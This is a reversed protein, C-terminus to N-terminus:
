VYNSDSYFLVCVFDIFLAIIFSVAYTGTDIADRNLSWMFICYLIFLILHFLYLGIYMDSFNKYVKHKRLIKQLQKSDELKYNLLSNYIHFTDRYAKDRRTKRSRLENKLIDISKLVLVVSDEQNKIKENIVSESKSRISNLKDISMELNNKMIRM